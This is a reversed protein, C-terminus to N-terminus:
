LVEVIRYRAAPLQVWQGAFKGSLQRGLPADASIAFVTHGDIVAKGLATAVLMYGKDTQVLSGPQVGAAPSNHKVALSELIAKQQLLVALQGTRNEQEIHLMARATEYKDGATSKTEHRLSEALDSLEQQLATIKEDLRAAFHAYVKEKFSPTLDPM